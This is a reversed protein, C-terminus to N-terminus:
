GDKGATTPPWQLGRYPPTPAANVEVPKKVSSPAFGASLCSLMVDKWVLQLLLSTIPEVLM